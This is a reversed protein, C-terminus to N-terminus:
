SCVGSPFLLNEGSALAATLAATDDTVGDGAAGFDGVSVAESTPVDLEGEGDLRLCQVLQGLDPEQQM